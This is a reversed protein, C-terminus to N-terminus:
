KPGEVLLADGDVAHARVEVLSGTPFAAQDFKVRLYEGTLGFRKGDKEAEIVVSVPRGVFKAAFRAGLQQGLAKLAAAREAVIEPAVRDGMSAAATGERPSFKFIHLRSFGAAEAVKMTELFDDDTEGPFGVMVDTTLGLDPLRRRLVQILRLFERATYRRNMASLVRDSGSQLPIHLHRAVRPEDEMIDILETTIEQPEISSLRLRRLGTSALINSVLKTLPPKGALDVGYKGLHIGTLVAEAAGGAAAGRIEEVIERVPRSLLRNRFMPIACYSCAEDCGDQAKIFIRTRPHEAKCEHGSAGGGTALLREALGAKDENGVFWDVGLEKLQPVHAEPFCGTLVVLAEPATRRARRILQRAKSEAEGTVGCTNIIYIDAPEGFAVPRYGSLQKRLSEGEYQNVKCGLTTLAFTKM